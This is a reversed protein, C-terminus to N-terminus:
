DACEILGAVCSLAIPRVKPQQKEYCSIPYRSQADKAGLSCVLSPLMSNIASPGNSSGFVSPGRAQVITTGSIYFVDGASKLRYRAYSDDLAAFYVGNDDTIRFYGRPYEPVTVTTTAAPVTSLPTSTVM